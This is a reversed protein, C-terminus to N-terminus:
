TPVKEWTETKQEVCILGKSVADIIIHMTTEANVKDGYLDICVTGNGINVRFNPM